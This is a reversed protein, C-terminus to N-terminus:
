GARGDKGANAADCVCYEAHRDGNNDACQACAQANRRYMFYKNTRGEQLAKKEYKTTVRNGIQGAWPQEFQNTLGPTAALLEHSMEAYEDIDTALYFAGGPKLRNTFADVTPRQMVRRHHHGSKFWPDPFNVHFEDVSAPRLLHHLFTEAAGYIVRINDYGQRMIRKEVTGIPKSALEVGVIHADPNQEALHFLMHGYGFGIEVILRRPGDSTEFLADWDVPWPLSHTDYQRRQVTM